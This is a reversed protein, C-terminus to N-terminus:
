YSFCLLIELLILLFIFLCVLAPQTESTTFVFIDGDIGEMSMSKSAANPNFEVLVRMDLKHAEKILKGLKEENGLKENIQKYKIALYGYSNDESPEIPNLLIMSTGLEKLYALKEAVGALDGVGDADSDRFKEVVLKYVLGKEHAELDPKPPCKPAFVIILIAAALLAAWILWFLVFLAWRIRVWFPDNAYKMLEEKSLGKFEPPKKPAYHPAEDGNANVSVAVHADASVKQMEIAPQVNTETAKAM